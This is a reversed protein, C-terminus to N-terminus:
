KGMTVGTLACHHWECLHLPDQPLTPLIIHHSSFHLNAQLYFHHWSTFLWAMWFPTTHYFCNHSCPFATLKRFVCLHAPLDFDGIQQQSPLGTRQWFWICFGHGAGARRHRSCGVLKCPLPLSDNDNFSSFSATCINGFGPRPVVLSFQVPFRLCRLLRQSWCSTVGHSRSSMSRVYWNISFNLWPINLGPSM